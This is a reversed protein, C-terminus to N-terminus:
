REERTKTRQPYKPPPPKTKRPVQHHKYSRAVVGGADNKVSLTILIFHGRRARHIDRFKCIFAPKRDVRAFTVSRPAFHAYPASGIRRQFTSVCNARGNVLWKGNSRLRFAAAYAYPEGATPARLRTVGSAHWEQAFRAPLNPNAPAIVNYRSEGAVDGASTAGSGYTYTTSSFDFSAPRGLASRDIEVALNRATIGSGPVDRWSRGSRISLSVEGTWYHYIAFDYGLGSGTRSNRDVDLYLIIMKKPPLRQHPPIETSIRLRGLDDNSVTVRHIDLEGPKADGVADVYTQSNAAGSQATAPAANRSEASTPGALVAFVAFAGLGRRSSM